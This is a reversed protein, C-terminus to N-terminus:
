LPVSQNNTKAPFRIKFTKAKDIGTCIYKIYMRPTYVITTFLDIAHNLTHSSPYDSFKYM